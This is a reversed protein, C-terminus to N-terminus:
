CLDFYPVGLTGKGPSALSYSTLCSFILLELTGKRFRISLLSQNPSYESVLILIQIIGAGKTPNELAHKLHARCLIFDFAIASSPITGGMIVSASIM